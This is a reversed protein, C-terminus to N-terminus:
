DRVITIYGKLIEGRGDFDVIYYYTGEALASGNLTGQWTNKYGRERFIMRGARDYVNVENNPYMDINDIIWTDNKGDGNPTIINKAHLAALDDRVSVTISKQESCGSANLATLTYTTTAAPRVTLASTNGGSIIGTGDSWSYSIGAPSGSVSANLTVAEGKSIAMRSDSSITIEPRANVTITFSQSFTDTGENETGGNDRLLITLTAVGSAGPRVTYRLTGETDSTKDAIVNELLNGNDNTVILIPTQNTEPGASIDSLAITQQETTYCIVQNRIINMTPAENIDTLNINFAQDLSVGHQTTSRVLVTYVPKQEYDLLSNCIIRNGSISFLTNDAYANTNELSYTFTANPDDSISSLTGALTGAPQNEYLPVATLRIDTPGSPNVSLIGDEYSIDYNVAAAGSATIPYTGIPSSITATTSIEPQATLVTNNETNVFGRYSVSLAPNEMGMLKEKNDAKITLTKRTISGYTIASPTEVIYNDKQPGSLIFDNVTIQKAPATNKNDYAATGSVFVQDDSLLGTLTYNDATLRAVTSGDYERTIAPALNLSLTLPKALISGTTGATTTVLQYSNANSGGLEFAGATVPKNLGANENDYAATATVTVDDETM